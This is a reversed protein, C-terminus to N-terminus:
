HVSVDSCTLANPAGGSTTPARYQTKRDNLLSHRLATPTSAEGGVEGFFFDLYETLWGVFHDLDRGTRVYPTNGPELSPSHFSITFSRLGLELLRRTVLKAEALSTGEPTLPIRNLLGFRAFFGPARLRRALPSAIRPYVQDALGLRGMMGVLGVTVPLELISSDRLWFPNVGFKEFNPGRGARMDLWPLISCDIQYGLARLAQLTSPGFGYRGARYVVPRASFNEEIRDTLRRLKEKELPPPLNCAFTNRPCIVEDFPPTIWAHLQSGIECRGEQFFELLPGYGSPQSAVAYDVVYCPKIAYAEFLRQAKVQSRMSTVDIADRSYSGWQFDEEADIIVSLRPPAEPPQRVFEGVIADKLHSGNDRYDPRVAPEPRRDALSMPRLRDIRDVLALFQDTRAQWDAQEAAQLAGTTLRAALTPDAFIRLVAQAVAEVSSGDVTLGNEGDSVADLVGGASGAVVPKGCANAEIFVLGFGETDGDPLERNPMVFLDALSYYDALLEDPADGVFTVHPHLGLEEVIAKLTPLYSGNGVVLYHIDPLTQLIIPLARLVHDVGKREVLRCVSLLIQKGQLGHHAILSVNKPQPAFRRRDVGNYIIDINKPPVDMAEELVRQTFRSVAVISDAYRLFYPRLRASLSEKARCSVEEGHIYYIIRCGLLLRCAMAVPGGYALEGICITRIGTRRVIQRIKAFIRLFIPLDDFLLSRLAAWRSPPTQVKPRLLRLRHVQYNARADHDRWHALEEGTVCSHTPGLALIRGEAHRCLSEYVVASGGRVPPFNSAVILCCPDAPATKRLDIPKSPVSFTM